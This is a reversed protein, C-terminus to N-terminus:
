KKSKLKKLEILLLDRHGFEEDGIRDILTYVDKYFDSIKLINQAMSKYLKGLSDESNALIKLIDDLNDNSIIEKFVTNMLNKHFEQVLGVSHFSPDKLKEKEARIIESHAYSHTDMFDLVGKAEKLRVINKLKEYFHSLDVELTVIVNLLEKLMFWEM